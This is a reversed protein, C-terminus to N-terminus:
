IRWFGEFGLEAYAAAAVAGVERVVSDSDVVLAIWRLSSNRSPHPHL